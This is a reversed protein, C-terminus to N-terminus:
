FFVSYKSYPCMPHFGMKEGEVLDLLSEQPRSRRGHDPVERGFSLLPPPPPRSCHVFDSIAWLHAPHSCLGHLGPRGIAEYEPVFYFSDGLLGALYM